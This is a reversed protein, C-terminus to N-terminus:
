NSTAGFAALAEDDLGHVVIDDRRRTLWAEREIRYSVEISREASAGGPAAPGRRRVLGHTGNRSYGAKESVRNSSPNDEWAGSNAALAGLGEFAFHLMAERMETGLGHGQFRRGIWSGSGVERRIGFDRAGIEQAGVPEGDVFAAFMCEWHEPSWAARKRVHAQYTGFGRKHPEDDTWPFGFPMFEPDHIGEGALEDMAIIEEDTPLRLEMRPTTVRVRAPPFISAVPHERAAGSDAM